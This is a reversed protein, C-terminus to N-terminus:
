SKKKSTSAAKKATTAKKAAPKKEAAAKKTTSSAAKSTKAATTKKAATKAKTATSEAKATAKKTTSAAKTTAKAKSATTKTTEEAKVSPKRGRKAPTTATATAKEAAPKRGRKASTTATAAAKEAAPKRGRKAPTTATATAKEAAPKRGRKAPTKTATSSSASKTSARKRTAPKKEEDDSKSSKSSDTLIPSIKRDLDSVKSDIGTSFLDTKPEIDDQPAEDDFLKDVKPYSSFEAKAEEVVESAAKEVEDAASNVATEVADVAESAVTESAVTADADKGFVTKEPLSSEANQQKGGLLGKFFDKLGMKLNEGKEVINNDNGIVSLKEIDDKLFAYRLRCELIAIVIVAFAFYHRFDPFGAFYNYVGHFLVAFVFPTIHLSKKRISYVFMGSLGCCFIHILTAAYRWVVHREVVYIFAEFCGLAMGCLVAYAFFVQLPTKKSPLLFLLLMKIGEEILALLIYKMLRNLLTSGPLRTGVFMLFIEAPILALLGLVCAWLGTLKKFGQVLLALCLYLAVLPIFCLALSLYTM